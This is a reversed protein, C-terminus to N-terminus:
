LLYYGGNCATCLNYSSRASCNEDTVPQCMLVNMAKVMPMAVGNLNGLTAADTYGAAYYNPNLFFNMACSECTYDGYYACNSTTPLATCSKGDTALEYGSKCM